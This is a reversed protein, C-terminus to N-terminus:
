THSNVSCIEHRRRPQPPRSMTHTKPRRLGAAAIGHWTDAPPQRGGLRKQM